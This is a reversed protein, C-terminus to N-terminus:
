GLNMGGESAVAPQSLLERLGSAPPVPSGQGSKVEGQQEEGQSRFFTLIENTAQPNRSGSGPDDPVSQLQLPYQLKQSGGPERGAGDIPPELTVRGPRNLRNGQSSIGVGGRLLKSEIQLSQAIDTGGEVPFGQL